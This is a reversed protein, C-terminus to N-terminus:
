IPVELGVGRIPLPISKQHQKKKLRKERFKATHAAHATHATAVTAPKEEKEEHVPSKAFNTKFNPGHCGFRGGKPLHPIGHFERKRQKKKYTKM